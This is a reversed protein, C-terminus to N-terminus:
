VKLLCIGEKSIKLWHLQTNALLNQSLPKLIIDQSMDDRYKDFIQKFKETYISDIKQSILDKLFNDTKTREESNVNKIAEKINKERDLSATIKKELEEQKDQLERIKTQLYGIDTGM